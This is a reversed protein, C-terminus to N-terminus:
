IELEQVRNLRQKVTRTGKHIINKYQKGLLEGKPRPRSIDKGSHSWLSVELISLMM